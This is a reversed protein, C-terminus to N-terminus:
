QGGRVPKNAAEWGPYDRDYFGFPPKYMHDDTFNIHKWGVQDFNGGRAPDALFGMVTHGRVVGFFPTKEIAKLVAIQQGATAASFKAVGPFLEKVKAQLQPLGETYEKKQDTDFTMLARDIFYIVRAERAGPSDDTPIIQAAIAEVEVAQEPTFFEFKLPTAAQAAHQAHQSAELIAPWNAALWASSIGATTRLVFHRRSLEPSDM